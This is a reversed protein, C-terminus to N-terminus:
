CVKALEPWVKAILLKPRKKRRLERPRMRRGRLVLLSKASRVLSPHGQVLGLQDVFAEAPKRTALEVSKPQRQRCMLKCM